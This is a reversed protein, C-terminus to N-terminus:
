THRGSLPSELARRGRDNIQGVHSHVSSDRGPRQFQGAVGRPLFNPWTAPSVERPPLEQPTPQQPEHPQIAQRSEHPTAQQPFWDVMGTQEPHKPASVLLSLPNKKFKQMWVDWIKSIRQYRRPTMTYLQPVHRSFADVLRCIRKVAPIANEPVYAGDDDKGQVLVQRANAYWRIIRDCAGVRWGMDQAVILTFNDADSFEQYFSLLRFLVVLNNRITVSGSQGYYPSDKRELFHRMEVGPAGSDFMFGPLIYLSAVANAASKAASKSVSSPQQLLYDHGPSPVDPQSHAM